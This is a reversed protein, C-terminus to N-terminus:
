DIIWVGALKVTALISRTNRANLAYNIGATINDGNPITVTSNKPASIFDSYKGNQGNYTQVEILEDDGTISNRCAVTQFKQPDSNEKVSRSATVLGKLIPVSVNTVGVQHLAYVKFTSVLLTLVFVSITIKLLKIM